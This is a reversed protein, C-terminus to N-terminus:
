RQGLLTDWLTIHLLNGLPYVVGRVIFFHLAPQLCDHFSDLFLVLVFGFRLILFELPVSFLKQKHAKAEDNISKADTGTTASPYFTNELLTFSTSASRFCILKYLIVNNWMLVTM